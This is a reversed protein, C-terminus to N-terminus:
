KIGKESLYREIKNALQEATFGYKEELVKYPASAGFREITIRLMPLDFYTNWGSGTGAEIVILAKLTDPIISQKYKEDQQDFIDKCPVSVVRVSYGKGELMEKTKISNEVESGSALIALQALNDRESAIV